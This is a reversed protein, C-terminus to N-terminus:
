KEILRDVSYKGPGSFFLLLFSVLYLLAMEKKAFPDDGHIIFAAVLMTIILPITALRTGLGLVILLSCFFEAFVALGLSAPPGVGLPDSFTDMREGYGSLKGWGHRTLMLLGTSVRFILLALDVLYHKTTFIAKM